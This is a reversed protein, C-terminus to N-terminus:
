DAGVVLNGCGDVSCVLVDEASKGGPGLGLRKHAAAPKWALGLLLRRRLACGLSDVGDLGTVVDVVYVVLAVEGRPIITM